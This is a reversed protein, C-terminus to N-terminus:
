QIAIFDLLIQRHHSGMPKIQGLAASYAEGAEIEAVSVLKFDAGEGLKLRDTKSLLPAHFVHRISIETCYTRFPYVAPPQYGIEEMLERLLAEEPSEETELHGGFFGWHDPYVIGPINDRLQMLYKDEQYLIAVSVIPLVPPHSADSNKTMMSFQM